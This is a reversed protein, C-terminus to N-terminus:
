FGNEQTKYTYHTCVCLFIYYMIRVYKPNGGLGWHPSRSSIIVDHEHTRRGVEVIIIVGDTNWVNYVYYLVCEHLCVCVSVFM